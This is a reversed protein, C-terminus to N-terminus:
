GGVRLAHPLPPIQRCCRGREIVQVEEVHRPNGVRVRVGVGVRVRVRVRGRGRGRARVWLTRSDRVRIGVGVRLGNAGACRNITTTPCVPLFTNSFFTIKPLFTHGNPM